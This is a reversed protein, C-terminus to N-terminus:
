KQTQREIPKNKQSTAQPNKAPQKKYRSTEQLQAEIWNKLRDTPVFRAIFNLSEVFAFLVLAISLATNIKSYKEQQVVDSASVHIRFDPYNQVTYNVYYVSNYGITITPYYDGQVQWNITQPDGALLAGLNIPLGVNSSVTANPVLDVGAYAPTISVVTGSEVYPLAGEFGISVDHIQQSIEPSLTGYAWVTVPQREAIEGTYNILIEFWIISANIYLIPGKTSPPYTVTLVTQYAKDPPNINLATIKWDRLNAYIYFAIYGNLVILAIITLVKISTLLQKFKILFFRKVNTPM